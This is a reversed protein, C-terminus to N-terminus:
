VLGESEVTLGPITISEIPDGIVITRTQQYENGRPSWM